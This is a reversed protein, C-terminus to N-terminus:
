GWRIAHKIHVHMINENSDNNSHSYVVLGEEDRRTGDLTDQAHWSKLRVKLREKWLNLSENFPLKIDNGGGQIANM